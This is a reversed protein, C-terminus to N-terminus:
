MKIFHNDSNSDKDKANDDAKRTRVKQLVRALDDSNNAHESSDNENSARNDHSGSTVEEQDRTNESRSNSPQGYGKFLKLPNLIPYRYQLRATNHNENSDAVSESTDAQEDESISSEDSNTDGASETHKEYEFMPDDRGGEQPKQIFDKYEESEDTDADRAYEDNVVEDARKEEAQSQGPVVAMGSRGTKKEVSKPVKSLQEAPKMYGALSDGASDGDVLNNFADIQESLKAKESAILQRVIEPHDRLTLLVDRIVDGVTIDYIDDETIPGDDEDETEAVDEISEIASTEESESSYQKNKSKLIDAATSHHHRILEQEVSDGEEEIYRDAPAALVQGTILFCLFFTFIRTMKPEQTVEM